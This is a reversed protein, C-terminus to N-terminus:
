KVYFTVQISTSGQLIKGGGADYTGTVSVNGTMGNSYFIGGSTSGMPAGTVALSVTWTTKATVDRTSGDSMTLTATLKSNGQPAIASPSAAVSLSIATPAVQAPPLVVTNTNIIENTNTPVSNTNQLDLELPKILIEETKPLTVPSIELRQKIFELQKPLLVNDLYSKIEGDLGNKLKQVEAKLFDRDYYDLRRALPVIGRPDSISKITQIARIKEGQTLLLRAALFKRASFNKEKEVRATKDFTLLAAVREGLVKAPYFRSGPLPGVQRLIANKKEKIFERFKEDRSFNNKFWQSARAGDSIQFIKAERLNKLQELNASLEEGSKLVQVSEAADVESLAVSNELVAVDVEGDINSMDFITGRVTAVVGGSEVEFYADPHLFELLRNWIQGKKLNLKIKTLFPTEQDIFSEEITVESNKDLSVENTDFLIIRALGTDDTRVTDGVKLETEAIAERFGEDGSKVFVGSEEPVVVVKLDPVELPRAYVKVAWASIAGFVLILIILVILLKKM